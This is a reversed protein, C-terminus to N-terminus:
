LCRRCLLPSTSHLLQKSSNQEGDANKDCSCAPETRKDRQEPEAAANVHKRDDCDDTTYRKDEACRQRQRPASNKALDSAGLRLRANLLELPNVAIGGVLGIACPRLRAKSASPPPRPVRHPRTAIVARPM